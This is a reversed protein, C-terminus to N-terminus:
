NADIYCIILTNYYKLKLSNLFNICLNNAMSLNKSDIHIAAM